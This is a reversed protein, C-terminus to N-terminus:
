DDTAGRDFVGRKYPLWAPYGRSITRWVAGAAAARDFVLGNRRYYERLAPLAWVLELAHVALIGLWVAAWGLTGLGTPVGGLSLAVPVSPAM